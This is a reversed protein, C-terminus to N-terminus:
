NEDAKRRLYKCYKVMDKKLRGIRYPSEDKDKKVLENICYNRVHLYLSHNTQRSMVIGVFRAKRRKKTRKIKSINEKIFKDRDILRDLMIEAGYYLDSNDKNDVTKIIFEIFNLRYQKKELKESFFRLVLDRQKKERRGTYMVGIWSFIFFFFLLNYLVNERLPGSFWADSKCIILERQPSESDGFWVLPVGTESIIDARTFEVEFFITEGNVFVSEGEILFILDSHSVSCLKSIDESASRERRAAVNKIPVGFDVHFGFIDFSKYQSRLAFIVKTTKVGGKTDDVVIVYPVKLREKIVEGVYATFIALFLPFLYKIVSDKYLNKMM